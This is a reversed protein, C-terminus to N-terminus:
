LGCPRDRPCTTWHGPPLQVITSVTRLRMRAADDGRIDHTVLVSENGYSDPRLREAPVGRSILYDRAAIARRLGLDWAAQRSATEYPDAAGYLIAKYDPYALLVKAQRDLIAKAEATLAASSASFSINRDADSIPQIPEVWRFQASASSAYGAM